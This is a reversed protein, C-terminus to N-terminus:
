KRSRIDLHAQSALPLFVSRRLLAVFLDMIRHMQIEPSVLPM